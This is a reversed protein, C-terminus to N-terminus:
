RLVTFSKNDSNFMVMEKNYKESIVMSMEYDLDRNTDDIIIPINFNFLDLHNLLNVRKEQIPGDVILLDYKQPLEKLLVSEDYWNDVLPAHIYNVQDSLGIWELDHEISYVKYLKSLEVSGFGSGLELIISNHPINTTIWEFMEASIAWDGLKTLDVELTMGMYYLYM